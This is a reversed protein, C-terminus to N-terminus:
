HFYQKMNNIILIINEDREKETLTYNEDFNHELQELDMQNIM